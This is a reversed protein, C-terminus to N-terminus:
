RILGRLIPNPASVLPDMDRVHPHTIADVVPNTNARENSFVYNTSPQGSLFDAQRREFGELAYSDAPLHSQYTAPDHATKPLELLPEHVAVVHVNPPSAWLGDVAPDLIPNALLLEGVSRLGLDPVLDSTGRLQLVDVSPPPYRTVEPAGVTVVSRVDFERDGAYDHAFALADAGGQSHGVLMVQDHSTVGAEFMAERIADEKATHIGIANKANIESDDINATGLGWDETGSISVIAHRHPPTGTFSVSVGGPYDYARELKESKKSHKLANLLGDVGAPGRGPFQAQETIRLQGRAYTKSEHLALRPRYSPPLL